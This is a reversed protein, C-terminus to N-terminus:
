FRLLFTSSVSAWVYEDVSRRKIILFTDYIIYGSFLLAGALAMTLDALHTTGLIFALLGYLCLVSVGCFLALLFAATMFLAEV